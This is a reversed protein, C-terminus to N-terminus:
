MGRPLGPETVGKMLKTQFPHFHLECLYNKRQSALRTLEALPSQMRRAM